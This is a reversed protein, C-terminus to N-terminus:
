YFKDIDSSYFSSKGTPSHPPSSQSTIINGSLFDIIVIVIGWGNGGGGAWGSQCDIIEIKLSFEQLNSALLKNCCCRTGGMLETVGWGGESFMMEESCWTSSVSAFVVM